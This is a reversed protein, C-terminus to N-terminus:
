APRLDGVDETELVATTAMRARRHAPEQLLELDVLDPCRGDRRVPTGAPEQLRDTKPLGRRCSRDRRPVRAIEGVPPVPLAGARTAKRPSSVRAPHGAMMARTFATRM